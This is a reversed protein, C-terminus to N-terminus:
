EPTRHRWFVFDDIDVYTTEDDFYTSMRTHISDYGDLIYPVIADYQSHYPVSNSVLYAWIDRSEWHGVPFCIPILPDNRNIGYADCNEIKQRRRVGEEARISLINLDWRNERISRALQEFFGSQQLSSHRASERDGGPRQFYHLRARPAIKRLNDLIEEEFPRPMLWKGYDWHWVDIEPMIQSVMHLTVTSDKGGSFSMFPRKFRGLTFKLYNLTTRVLGKFEESDAHLLYRLRNADDM